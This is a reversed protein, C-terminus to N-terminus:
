APTLATLVSEALSLSATLGPSEIGALGVYGALGHDRPGKLWFDAEGGGKPALKPRVGAYDPALAGDALEPWYRRIAAYFADGRAPDVTYDEGDIWEVDPGFKAKGGLDLTLHVGLGGAVPAPYILRDFPAAGALSFYVGRAFYRAPAFEPALGAIGAALVPADHGAANVVERARLSMPAAGGFDVEFGESARIAEVPAGLALMAGASEAEGLLSLMFGHSDVIGTSPSLIAGTTRLAPEMARADAASILRVDDVGNAQARACIAALKEDEGAETAVILKGCRRYPVGRTECYDYLRRRGDVCSLAKLSDKPYYIGAHIVESNRSSTISGILDEREAILVERGSRALARAAALGVVGAGIVLTQIEEM